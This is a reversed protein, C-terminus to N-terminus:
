KNMEIKVIEIFKDALEYWNKCHIETNKYQISYDAKDTTDKSYQKALDLLQITTKPSHMYLAFATFVMDRIYVPAHTFYNLCYKCVDEYYTDSPIFIQNGKVFSSCKTHIKDDEKNEEICKQVIALPKEITNDDNFYNTSYSYYTDAIYKPPNEFNLYLQKSWYHPVSLINSFWGLMVANYKVSKYEYGIEWKNTRKTQKIDKLENQANIYEKYGSCNKHIAGTGGCKFFSILESCTGNIFTSEKILDCLYDAKIGVTFPEIGDKEIYCMWFSLKGSNMSDQAANLITLRFDKNETVVINPEKNYHECRSWKIATNLQSLISKTTGDEVIFAKLIEKGNVKMTDDVSYVIKVKEIPKYGYFTIPKCGYDVLSM